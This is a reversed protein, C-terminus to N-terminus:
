PIWHPKWDKKPRHKYALQLTPRLDGVYLDKVSSRNLVGTQLDLEACQVAHPHDYRRTVVFPGRWKNALKRSSKSDVDQPSNWDILENVIPFYFNPQLKSDFRRKNNKHKKKAWLDRKAMAYEQNFNNSNIVNIQSFYVQDNFKVKKLERTQDGRKIVIGEDDEEIVQEEIPTQKPPYPENDFSKDRNNAIDKDIIEEHKNPDRGIWTSMETIPHKGYVRYFPSIRSDSDPACRMTYLSNAVFEPWHEKPLQADLLHCRILSNLTKHRLEVPNSNPHYVLGFYLKSAYQKVLERLRTAIFTSGQDCVLILGHGFRPFIENELIKGIAHSTAKKLPFAEVWLTGLCVMTFLYTIGGKGEPYQVLDCSFTKLREHPRSTTQGLGPGLKTPRRKGDQCEKCGKIYADCHAALNPMWFQMLCQHTTREVGLHFSGKAHHCSQIMLTFMNKPIVLLKRKFGDITKNIMLTPSKDNENFLKLEFKSNRAEKFMKLANLQHDALDRDERDLNPKGVVIPGYLETVRAKIQLKTKPWEAENQLCKIINACVKDTKQISRLMNSLWWSPGKQPYEVNISETTDIIPSQVLEDWTETPDSFQVPPPKDDDQTDEENLLSVEDEIIINGHQKKASRTTVACHEMFKSVSGITVKKTVKPKNILKNIFAKPATLLTKSRNVQELWFDDDMRIEAESRISKVHEADWREERLPALEDFSGFDGERFKKRSLADALAMQTAPTYRIDLRFDTLQQQFRFIERSINKSTSKQLWELGRHDTRVIIAEGGGPKGEVGPGGSLLYYRFNQCALVLGLLELKYSGWKSQPETLKRSGYAIMVDCWSEKSTQPNKVIQRQALAAGVAESSTDVVVVFQGGKTHDHWIPHNLIPPRLLLEVMANLEQQCKDNWAYDGVLPEPKARKSPEWKPAKKKLELINHVKKSFLRIFKRFYNLCGILSELEKNSEPQDWDRITRILNEDPTIGEESIIHGLWSFKKAGVSCKELGLKLGIDAITALFVDIKDLLEEFTHAGVVADDFYICINSLIDPVKGQLKQEMLQVVKNFVGPAQCLGFPMRTWEWQGLPCVFGTKPIDCERVRCSYYADRMDWKSFFKLERGPPGKLRALKDMMNAIPRASVKTVQNLKRFDICFRFSLGDRKRVAVVPSAWEGSGERIIGLSEWKEICKKMEKQLIPNMPRCKQRIPPGTTEIEIEIGEVLGLDYENLAFAKKHKAVRQCVIQRQETTLDTNTDDDYGFAIWLRKEFDTLKVTESLPLKKNFKNAHEKILENGKDLVRKYLRRHEPKPWKTNTQEKSIKGVTKQKKSSNRYVVDTDNRPEWPTVTRKRKIGTDNRPECPNVTRKRKEWSEVYDNVNSALAAAVYDNPKDSYRYATGVRTNRKLTIPHDSTNTVQIRIYDKDGIRDVSGVGLLQYKALEEDNPEFFVECNVHNVTSSGASFGSYAPFQAHQGPQIVVKQASRVPACMPQHMFEHMPIILPPDYDLFILRELDERYDIVSGFRRLDGYSFIMQYDMDVVVPQVVNQKVRTEDKDPNFFEIEFPKSVMGLPKVKKGKAVTNFTQLHKPLDILEANPDLFNLYEPSILTVVQNGSDCLVECKEYNNNDVFVKITTFCKVPLDCEDLNYVANVSLNHVNAMLNLGSPM